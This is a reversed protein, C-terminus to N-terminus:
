STANSNSPYSINKLYHTEGDYEFVYPHVEEFPVPVGYTDSEVYSLGDDPEFSSNISIYYYYDTAVSPIPMNETNFFGKVPLRHSGHTQHEGSNYHKWENKSKDVLFDQYFDTYCDGEAVYWCSAVYEQPTFQEILMQPKSYRKKEM